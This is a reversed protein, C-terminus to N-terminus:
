FFTNHAVALESDRVVLPSFLTGQGRAKTLLTGQYAAGRLASWLLPLWHNAVVDPLWTGLGGACVPLTPSM